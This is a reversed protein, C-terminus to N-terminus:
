SQSARTSKIVRAVFHKLPSLKVGGVISRVVSYRDRESCFLVLRM